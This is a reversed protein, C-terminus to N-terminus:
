NGLVKSTLQYPWTVAEYVIKGTERATPRRRDLLCETALGGFNLCLLLKATFVYWKAGFALPSSM